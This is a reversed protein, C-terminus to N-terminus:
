APASPSSSRDPMTCRADWANRLGAPARPCHDAAEPNHGAAAPNCRHGWRDAAAAAAPNYRHGAARNCHHGAEPNHDAARYRDPLRDAAVSAAVAAITLPKFNFLAIQLLGPRAKEKTGHIATDQSLRRVFERGRIRVM